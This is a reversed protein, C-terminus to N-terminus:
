AAESGGQRPASPSAGGHREEPQSRAVAQLFVEDYGECMAEITFHREAHGLQDAHVSARLEGDTLLAAARCAFAESDTAVALAEERRLIEPLGGVDYGVVPVGSAIAHVSGSGFTDAIVPALGLDLSRYFAPLAAFALWGLWEVRDAVGHEDLRARLRDRAPGDGVIRVRLGPVRRLLAALADGSSADIKDGALRYAMGAVPDRRPARLPARFRSLPSGPYVTADPIGPVGSVSRSWESCFVLTQRDTGIWPDGTVCHSQVLPRGSAAVTDLVVDYWALRENGGHYHCVHVVDPDFRDLARRLEDPRPRRRLQQAVDVHYLPSQRAALVLHESASLCGDVLDVVLQQAGGTCLDAIAHLVRLGGRPAGGLTRHPPRGRLTVLARRAPAALADRLRGRWSWRTGSRIRRAIAVGAEHLRRRGVLRREADDAELLVRLAVWGEPGLERERDSVGTSLWREPADDSGLV